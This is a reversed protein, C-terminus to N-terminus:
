QQESVQAYHDLPVLEPTDDEFATRIQGGSGPTKRKWRVMSGCFACSSEVVMINFQYKIRNVAGCAPCERVKIVAAYENKM